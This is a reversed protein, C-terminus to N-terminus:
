SPSRTRGPRVAHRLVRGVDRVAARAQLKGFTIIQAVRDRATSRQPRLRHGRRAAGPLLRHRLRADVRARPEPLARVAPQVAASRPRHHDAGLRGALRRGLRPGARGPHGAGEGVQHLGRRDPLLRLLGDSAIVGLEYELRERYVEGADGCRRRGDDMRRELGERAMARVTRRRPAAAASRPASAAAAAQPDGGHRRLPPRHGAHQRLGGAPRRVARAHRRRAQVLARATVRRRDDEALMRGEAICLLADHAEHMDRSPSTARRQHRGAAHRARRRLAILGPEIPPRSRCATAICNVPRHPGPVGRAM